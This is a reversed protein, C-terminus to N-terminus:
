SVSEFDLIAAGLSKDLSAVRDRTECLQTELIIRNSCLHPTFDVDSYM